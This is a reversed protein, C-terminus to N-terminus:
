VEALAAGGAAVFRGGLRDLREVFHRRPLPAKPLQDIISLLAPVATVELDTEVRDMVARLPKDQDCAEIEGFDKLKAPELVLEATGQEFPFRHLPLPHTAFQM